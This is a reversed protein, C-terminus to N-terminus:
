GVRLVSNERRQQSLARYDEASDFARPLTGADKDCNWTRLLLRGDKGLDAPFRNRAHLVRFNDFIELDGSRVKWSTRFEPSHALTLFKYFCARHADGKFPNEDLAESWKVYGPKVVFLPEHREFCVTPLGRSVHSQSANFYEVYRIPRYLELALPSYQHALRSALAAPSAIRRYGGNSGARICLFVIFDCADNHYTLADATQYGRVIGFRAGQQVAEVRHILSGKADMPLQPGFTRAVRLLISKYDSMSWRDVPLGRIRALGPGFKVSHRARQLLAELMEQTASGRHPTGESWSLDWTRNALLQKRTWATRHQGLSRLRELQSEHRHHVPLKPGSM